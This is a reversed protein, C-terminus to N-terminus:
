PFSRVERCENHIQEVAPFMVASAATSRIRLCSSAAAASQLIATMRKLSGASPVKRVLEVEADRLMLDQLGGVPQLAPITWRRSQRSCQMASCLPFTVTM